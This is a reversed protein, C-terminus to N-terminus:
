PRVGQRSVSRQREQHARVVAQEFPHPSDKLVEVVEAVSEPQAGHTADRHDEIPPHAIETAKEVKGEPAPSVGVMEALRETLRAISREALSALMDNESARHKERMAEWQALQDRLSEPTELVDSREDVLVPAPRTPAKREPAPEGLLSRVRHIALGPPNTVSEPVPITNLREYIRSSTWGRGQLERIAQTCIQASRGSYIWDVLPRPISSRLLEWDTTTGDMGDLRPSSTGRPTSPQINEDSRLSSSNSIDKSIHASSYRARNESARDSKDVAEVPEIGTDGTVNQSRAHIESARHSRSNQERVPAERESGAVPFDPHSECSVIDLDGRLGASVQALIEQYVESPDTPTDAFVIIDRFQGARRARFRFRLNHEELEKLASLVATQGMGRKMFVRYGKPASEPLSLAYTLIGLAPFSLDSHIVMNPLATAGKRVLFYDTAM